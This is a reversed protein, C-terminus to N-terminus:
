SHHQHPAGYAAAPLRQLTDTCCDKPHLKHAARQKSTLPAAHSTLRGRHRCCLPPPPRPFHSPSTLYMCSAASNASLWSRSASTARLSPNKSLASLQKNTDHRQTSRVSQKQHLIIHAHPGNVWSSSPPPSAPSTSSMIIVCPAARCTSASASSDPQMHTAHLHMNSNDMNHQRMYPPGQTGTRSIPCLGEMSHHTHNNATSSAASRHHGTQMHCHGVGPYYNAYLPTPHQLTGLARCLRLTGAQLPPKRIM